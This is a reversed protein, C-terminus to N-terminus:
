RPAAPAPAAATAGLRRIVEPTLDLTTDAAIIAGAAVDLILSYQGEERVGEIIVTIRDMVPQILEDRRQEALQQLQQTRTQYETVRTQIQQERTAKAEPSLTLQQQELRQQMGTIEQQLQQVESQYGQMERDFQQQAAAAEASGALIQQSNIYGIKLTQAEAPGVLLACALASIALSSRM